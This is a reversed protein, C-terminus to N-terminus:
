YLVHLRADQTLFYMRSGAIIPADTIGEPIEVTSALKGDKPSFVRMEGHTGAVILQSNALIPGRWVLPDRHKKENAYQPLPTVWKVRGDARQVCILDDESSLIYLFDDAVWPTNLTSVNQEWVRRGSLLAIGAFFGGADGAYVVDDKVIPNGGIGSFLSTASNRRSLLLTDTWIPQGGAADIAHIDGSTYPAVVVTDTVAPTAAALFGSIQTASRDSWVVTGSAANVAFLQNDVSLVYIKDGGTKPAVRLSVGLSQKWLEKGTKADLAFVRGRGTTAYIHGSDFALGGGLIDAEDDTVASQNTWLIKSIDAANHATIYGKADMAYVVGGAVIPGPYVPQQWSNHDGIKASEHHTFGSFALNGTLGAPTGGAERWNDNAKVQPVTVETTALSADPQMHDLDSLVAIRTGPLPKKDDDGGGLYTYMDDITECGTMLLVM